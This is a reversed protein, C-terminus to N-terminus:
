TFPLLAATRNLDYITEPLGALHLIRRQLDTLPTVQRLVSGENEMQYVTIPDFAQLLRETTPQSTTRKPNGAYLGALGEAEEQLSRRVVFEFLCLFRLALMLLFMLGRIRAESRLLLPRVALWGGKIRHFGHEPQWQERYCALAEQLSLRQSPANTVYLRWGALAYAESLAEQELDVEVKWLTSTIMEYPSNANHRGRKLYRKTQKTECLYCVRLYDHMGFRTLLTQCQKMLPAQDTQPKANLNELAEKAQKLRQDLHQHQRQRLKDSCM